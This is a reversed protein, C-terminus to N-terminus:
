IVRARCILKKSEPGAFHHINKLKIKKLIFQFILFGAVYRGGRADPNNFDLQFQM